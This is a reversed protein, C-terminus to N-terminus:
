YEYFYVSGTPKGADKDGPCGVFAWDSTLAISYGFNDDPDSNDSVFAKVLAPEGAAFDYLRVEASSQQAPTSVLVHNGYIAVDFVYNSVPIVVPSAALNGVKYIELDEASVAVYEDTGSIIPMFNRPRAAIVGAARWNAGDFKYVHVDYTTPMNKKQLGVFAYNEDIDISYWDWSYDAPVEITGSQEWTGATERYIVISNATGGILNKKGLRVGAVDEITAQLDFAGGAVSYVMTRAELDGNMLVNSYSIALHDDSVDFGAPIGGGTEHIWGEGSRRYIYSGGNGAAFILDSNGVVMFGLQGNERLDPPYVENASFHEVNEVDGEDCGTLVTVAILICFGFRTFKMIM